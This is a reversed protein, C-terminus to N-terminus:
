CVEYCRKLPDLLFIKHIISDYCLVTSHDSPSFGKRGKPSGRKGM